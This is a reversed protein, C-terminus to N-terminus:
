RGNKRSEEYEDILKVLNKEYAKSLDTFQKVVTETPIIKERNDVSSIILTSFSIVGANFELALKIMNILYINYNKM